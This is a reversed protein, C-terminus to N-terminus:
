AERKLIGGIYGAALSVIAVLGADVPKDFASLGIIGAVGILALAGLIHITDLYLRPAQVDTPLDSKIAQLEVLQQEIDNTNAM